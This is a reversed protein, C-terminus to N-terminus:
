LQCHAFSPVQPIAWSPALQSGGLFEYKISCFLTWDEDNRDMVLCSMKPDAFENEQSLAM